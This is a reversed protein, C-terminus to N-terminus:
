DDLRHEGERKRPIHHRSDNRDTIRVSSIRAAAHETAATHCVHRAAGSDVMLDIFNEQGTRRHTSTDATMAMLLGSM